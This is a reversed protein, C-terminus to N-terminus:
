SILCLHMTRPPTYQAHPPTPTPTPAMLLVKHNASHSPLPYPTLPLIYHGTPVSIVIGSHWGVVNCGPM